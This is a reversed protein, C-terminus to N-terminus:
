EDNQCHCETENDRLERGCWFCFYANNLLSLFAGRREEDTLGKLAALFDFVAKM